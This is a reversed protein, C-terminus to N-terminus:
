RNGGMDTCMTLDSRKPLAEDGVHLRVPSDSADDHNIDYVQSVGPRDIPTLILYANGVRSPGGELPVM